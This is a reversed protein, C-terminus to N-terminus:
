RRAHDRHGPTDPRRRRGTGPLGPQQRPRVPRLRHHHRLLHGRLVLGPRRRQRRGGASVCASTAPRTTRRGGCRTSPATTPATCRASPATRRSARPAAPRTSTVRSTARRRPRRPRPPTVPVDIPHPPAPPSAVPRRAASTTVSGTCAIGNLTFVTPVPNSGRGRATSASPRRQGRHPPRRQLVREDRDGPRGSQTYSGNWLQTITQGAAFSWRLALRHDSRRPQHRHRQRRLWGAVPQHHHLQGLLRGHGCRGRSYRGRCRRGARSRDSRGAGLPPPLAHISARPAGNSIRQPRYRPVPRDGARAARVRPPLGDPPLWGSHPRTTGNRLRARPGPVPLTLQSLLQGGPDHRDRQCNALFGFQTSAGAGLSGNYSVNRATVASGSTSLTTSWSQTITQGSALQWTVTWSSIASSGATVTVAGQFGGPWQQGVIAYTATCRGGGAPPTTPEGVPVLASRQEAPYEVAPSPPTTPPNSVPTGSGLATLVANYAAKKNGSRRVASPQRQQAVLRQGPHGLRHDRRLPGREHVGQRHQHLQDGVGARHGVRDVACRCRARRLEVAHDPLEVASWRYRLPSQFGVCDIPVGRSKFDKVMSYVGQTKAANWDEINYDNYCLKAAPDAARATRFAEEIFGNGLVNQFVSSRHQTSGDAFAENVVDWAYIKGKFHSIETTIHNDM